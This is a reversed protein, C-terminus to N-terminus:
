VEDEVPVYGGGFREVVEVVAVQAQWSSFRDGCKAHVKSQASQAVPRTASDRRLEPSQETKPPQSLSLTQATNEAGQM